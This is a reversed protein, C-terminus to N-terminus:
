IINQFLAAETKQGRKKRIFCLHKIDTSMTNCNFFFFKVTIHKIWISVSSGYKEYFDSFDCPSTQVQGETSLLQPTQVWM